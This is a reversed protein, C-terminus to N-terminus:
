FCFVRIKRHRRCFEYVRLSNFHFIILPFVGHILERNVAHSSFTDYSVITYVQSRGLSM